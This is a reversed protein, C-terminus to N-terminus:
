KFFDDWKLYFLGVPLKPFGKLKPEMSEDVSVVDRTVSYFCSFVYFQEDKTHSFLVWLHENAYSKFSTTM